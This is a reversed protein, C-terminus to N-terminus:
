TRDVSEKKTLDLAARTVDDFTISTRNQPNPGGSYMLYKEDGQGFLEGDKDPDPVHETEDFGPAEGEESNVLLHTLEHATDSALFDLFNFSDANAYALSDAIFIYSGYVKSLGYTAGSPDTNDDAYMLHVFESLDRRPADDRHDAAWNQRDTTNAFIEHPTATLEDFIWYMFIGLGDTKDSFGKSATALVSSLQAATPMDNVGTMADVEALLNKRAVSLRVHRHGGLGDLGDGDYGGGDLHFGRYEQLAELEDGATLHPIMDTGGDTNPGDPDAPETDDDGDFLGTGVTEHAAYRWNWDSVMDREWKDALGDHDKDEPASRQALLVMNAGLVGYVQVTGAAAYDKAFFEVSTKGSAMVGDQETDDLLSSFSYDDDYPTGEVTADSMNEAYGPLATPDVLKFRIADFGSGTGIGALVLKMAQPAFTASNFDGSSLKPEAQTPDSSAPGYGPLYNAAGDLADDLDGDANVDLDFRAVTAKVPDSVHTPGSASSGLIFEPKITVDRLSPSQRTGELRLDIVQPGSVSFTQGNVVRVWSSGQLM